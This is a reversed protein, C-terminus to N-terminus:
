ITPGASTITAQEKKLWPGGVRFWIFISRFLLEATASDGKYHISLKGGGKNKLPGRALASTGRFVLNGSEGLNTMM